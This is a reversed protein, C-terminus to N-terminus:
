HLATKQGLLLVSGCFLGIYSTVTFIQGAINGASQKDLLNFLVPAVVYGAFWMGGVWLAAALGHLTIALANLNM